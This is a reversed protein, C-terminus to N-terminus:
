IEICKTKETNKELYLKGYLNSYIDITTFKEM